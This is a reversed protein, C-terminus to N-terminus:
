ALPASGITSRARALIGAMSASRECSGASLARKSSVTAWSIASSLYPEGRAARPSPGVANSTARSCAPARLSSLSGAGARIGDRSWRALARRTTPCRGGRRVLAGWVKGVWYAGEVGPVATAKPPTWRACRSSWLAAAQDVRTGARARAELVVGRCRGPRRPDRTRRELLCGSRGHLLPMSCSCPSRHRTAVGKWRSMGSPARGTRFLLVHVSRCVALRCCFNWSRV